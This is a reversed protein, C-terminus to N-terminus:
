RNVRPLWSVAMFLVRILVAMASANLTLAYAWVVGGVTDVAWDPAPAIALSLALAVCSLLLLRLLSLLLLFLLLLLEPPAAALATPATDALLPAVALEAKLLENL